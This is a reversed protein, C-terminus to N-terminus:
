TAAVSGFRQPGVMATGSRRRHEDRLMPTTAAADWPQRANPSGDARGVPM